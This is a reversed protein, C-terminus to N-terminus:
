VGMGFCSEGSFNAYLFKDSDVESNYVNSMLDGTSYLKDNFHLFLAHIPSLKMRKRITYVFQGVTLDLPVLFKKKDIQPIDAAAKPHREVIVPIREPYKELIKKAEALRKEVSHEEKFTKPTAMESKQINFFIKHDNLACQTGFLKKRCM